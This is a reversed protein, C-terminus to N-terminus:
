HALIDVENYDDLPRIRIKNSNCGCSLCPVYETDPKLKTTLLVGPGTIQMTLEIMDVKVYYKARLVMDSISVATMNQAQKRYLFGIMKDHVVPTVSDIEFASLYLNREIIGFGEKGVCDLGEPIVEFAYLGENFVVDGIIGPYGSSASNGYVLGDESLTMKTSLYKRDCKWDKNYRTAKLLRYKTAIVGTITSVNKLIDLKKLTEVDKQFEILLNTVPTKKKYLEVAEDIKQVIKLTEELNKGKITKELRTKDLDFGKKINESYKEKERQNSNYGLTTAVQKLYKLRTEHFEVIENLQPMLEELGEKLEEIENDVDKSQEPIAEILKQLKPLVYTPAYQTIYM